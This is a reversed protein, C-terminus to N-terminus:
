YCQRKGARSREWARRAAAVDCNEPSIVLRFEKGIRARRFDALEGRLPLSGADVGSIDAGAPSFKPVKDARKRKRRAHAAPKERM